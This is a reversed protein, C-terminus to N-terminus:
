RLSGLIKEVIVSNRVMVDAIMSLPKDWGAWGEAQNIRDQERAQAELMRARPESATSLQAEFSAQDLNKGGVIAGMFAAAQSSFEDLRQFIDPILGPDAGTGMAGTFAQALTPSQMSKAQQEMDALRKLIVSNAAFQQQGSENFQKLADGAGKTQAAFTEMFKSAALFPAAALGVGVGATGLGGIMGGLPGAGLAGLSPMLAQRTAAIRKSSDAITKEVQKMAPAVQATQITIPIKLQPIASM